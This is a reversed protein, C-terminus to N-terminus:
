NAGGLWDSQGYALLNAPTAALMLFLACLNMDEKVWLACRMSERECVCVCVRGECACVCEIM